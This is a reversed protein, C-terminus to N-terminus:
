NKYAEKNKFRYKTLRKDGTKILFGNNVGNKLDRSATASSIDKNYRLYDQRSFEKSGILDYFLHIRESDTLTVNQSKLVEDLAKDIIELMFEILM